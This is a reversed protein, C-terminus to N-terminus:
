NKHLAENLEIGHGPRIRAEVVGTASNRLFLVNDRGSLDRATMTSGDVLDPALGQPDRVLVKMGATVYLGAEVICDNGLSIGVGANAGLLSNEGLSVRAKGGGSLTGMTSAGGGIDSNKGVVVGQSIRGEVMAPGLTGANFNVFGSPMVTTGPALHAGLRVSAAASIRVGEPQVHDLMRPFRDISLVNLPHGFARRARLQIATFEAAACVGHDTWVVNALHGMLDSLNITNPQVVCHSLLHLRLYADASDAPAADLDVETETFRVDINRVDDHSEYTALEVATVPGDNDALPGLGPNPYWVDLVTGEPTVTALGYGSAIRM